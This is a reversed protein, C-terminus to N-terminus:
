FLPCTLKSYKVSVWVNGHVGRLSKSTETSEEHLTRMSDMLVGCLSWSSERLVGYDMEWYDVPSQTSDMHLGHPTKM